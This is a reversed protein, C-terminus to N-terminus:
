FCVGKLFVKGTIHMNERPRKRLRPPIKLVYVGGELIEGVTLLTNGETISQIEYHQMKIM